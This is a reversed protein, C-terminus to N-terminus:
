ISLFVVIVDTYFHNRLVYFVSHKSYLVTNIDKSELLRFEYNNLAKLIPNNKNEQGAM